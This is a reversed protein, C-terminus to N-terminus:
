LASRRLQSLIFGLLLARFEGDFLYKHHCFNPHALLLTLELRELSWEFAIAITLLYKLWKNNQTRQISKAEYQHIRTTSELPKLRFVPLLTRTRNYKTTQLKATSSKSFTKDTLTRLSSWCRWKEHIFIRAVLILVVIIRFYKCILNWVTEIEQFIKQM